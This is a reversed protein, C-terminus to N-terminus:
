RRCGKRPGRPGKHMSNKMFHGIHQDFIVRQEETLLARVDQVFKMRKKQIDARLKAMDDIVSNIAKMDVKEATSLTHLRAQKEKLVNQIPMVEKLMAAHLKTIQAKQEKTIDPLRDLMQLQGSPPPPPPPPPPAQRGGGPKGQAFSSLTTTFIMAMMLILSMSLHKAKSNKM